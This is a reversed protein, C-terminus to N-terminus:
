DLKQPTEYLYLVIIMYANSDEIKKGCVLLIGAEPSSHVRNERSRHTVGASFAGYYAPM